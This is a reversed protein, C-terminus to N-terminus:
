AASSSGFILLFNHFKGGTEDFCISNPFPCEVSHPQFRHSSFICIKHVCGVSNQNSLLGTVCLNWHERGVLHKPFKGPNSEPRTSTAMVICTLFLEIVEGTKVPPGTTSSFARIM